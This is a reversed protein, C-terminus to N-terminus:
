APEQNRKTGNVIRLLRKAWQDRSYKQVTKYGKNRIMERDKENNLYHDILGKLHHTSHFIELDIGGYFSTHMNPWPQTLLFGKAALIKYVRDSCGDNNRVLNINIKSRSVIEAHKKGYVNTFHEFKIGKLIKQRAPTLAGIFSVDINQISRHPQDIDPDFGEELFYVNDSYKKAEEYPKQLACFTYTCHKIKEILEKNFSSMPDMYWLITDSIISCEKIVTVDITNGKCFLTVSPKEELCTEIIQEDRLNNPLKNRYHYEIVECGARQLGRSLSNNTSTPSFVGVLLVKM